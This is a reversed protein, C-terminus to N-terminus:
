DDEVVDDNTNAALAEREDEDGAIAENSNGALRHGEVDDENTDASLMEPEENINSAIMADEKTGTATLVTRRIANKGGVVRDLNRRTVVVNPHDPALTDELIALARRYHREAEDLDGRRRARVGLNNLTIAVSPHGPGLSAEKAALARRLAVTAEEDQELVSALNSWAAGVEPHVAGLERELIPLAHRLLVAAEGDRGLAHLIPALAAEDEATAVHDAGMLRRRLEVARRAHPEAAAYDRRAHELGGLNHHLSAADPTEAGFGRAVVAFAREYACRGEDFRGAYKWTMGLANLVHAVEVSWSGFAVEARALADLLITEAGGYDGRSCAVSGLGLMAEVDDSPLAAFAAAAEDHAGLALLAFGREPCAADGVLTLAERPRREALAVGALRVASRAREADARAAGYDGFDEHLRSRAVLAEPESADALAALAARYECQLRLELAAELTM